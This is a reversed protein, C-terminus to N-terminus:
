FQAELKIISHNLLYYLENLDMETNIKIFTGRSTNLILLWHPLNENILYILDSFKESSYKTQASTCKKIVDALSIVKKKEITFLSQLERVLEPLEKTKNIKEVIKPNRYKVLQNNM